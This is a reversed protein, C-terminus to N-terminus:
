DWNFKDSKRRTRERRCIWGVMSIRTFGESPQRRRDGSRREIFDYESYHNTNPQNNHINQNENMSIDEMIYLTQVFIGAEIQRCGLEYIYEKGSPLYGNGALKYVVIPKLSCFIGRDM